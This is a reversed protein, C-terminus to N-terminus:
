DQQALHALTLALTEIGLSPAAPAPLPHDDELPLPIVGAPGHAALHAAAHQGRSLMKWWRLDAEDCASEIADIVIKDCAVPADIQLAHLHVQVRRRDALQDLESRIAAFVQERNAPDTDRLSLHFSARAHIEGPKDPTATLHHVTATLDPSLSSRSLQEIAHIAEAAAALADRRDPMLVADASGGEGQIAVRLEAAGALGLAIGVPIKKTRLTTGVDGALEVWAHVGAAGSEQAMSAQDTSSFDSTVALLDIPRRPTFGAERLCRLAELGGLIGLGAGTQPPADIMGGTAVPAASRHGSWRAHLSGAEKLETTLGLAELRPRLWAQRDTAEALGAWAAADSAFRDTQPTLDLDSLM